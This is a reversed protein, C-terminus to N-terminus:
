LSKRLERLLGPDKLVQIVKLRDADSKRLMAALILPRIKPAENEPLTSLWQSFAPEHGEVESVLCNMMLALPRGPQSARGVLIPQQVWPMPLSLEKDWESQAFPLSLAWNYIKALERPNDSAHQQAWSITQSAGDVKADDSAIGETLTMWRDRDPASEQIIRAGRGIGGDQRGAPSRLALLAKLPDRDWLKLFLTGSWEDAPDYIPGKDPLNGFAAWAAEPNRGAEQCLLIALLKERASDEPPLATVWQFAPDFNESNLASILWAAKARLLRDDGNGRLEHAAKELVERWDGGAAAPGPWELSPLREQGPPLATRPHLAGRTTLTPHQPAAAQVTIAYGAAMAAAGAVALSAARRFLQASKGSSPTRAVGDPNFLSFPVVGAPVPSQLAAALGASLVVVPVAAGRRRLSDALKGLARSARRQVAAETERRDNAIERYTRGLCYHALIVERDRESLGELAEDLYPLAPHFADPTLIVGAVPSDTLIARHESFARLAHQRRLEGRAANRAQLTAARHLWVALGGGTVATLKGAKRALLLFVAQSVERAAEPDRTVRLAAHYVLGAHRQALSRFASEDQGSLFRKLLEDDSMAPPAASASM